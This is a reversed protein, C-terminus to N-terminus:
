ATCTGLEEPRSARQMLQLRGDVVKIIRDAHSFYADDHTIVILTKGRRKLEPLLQTYFVRKFVPDQDAAWEDFLYIPRDELYASVLALRKRQGSSLDLTSFKNNVIKVKHALGLLGLYHEAQEALMPQDTGLLQEFLHFDAFVASFYQRYSNRNSHTIPVDNLLITGKEPEYLGVLLMALTTKGSGNGGVIFVTEGRQITLNLPGLVFQTDDAASRYRHCVDRLELSTVEGFPLHVPNDNSPPPSLGIDLQRIRELAIGAQRLSPMAMMLDSIPRVLYLVILCVAAVLEANQPFWLPIGFLLLGITLYFLMNGANTVWTYSTMAKISSEQLHLSAPAMVDEVFAVGRQTNLQLEKSGEILSRFHQYLSDLQERMKGLQRLPWREVFHYCILCLALSITFYAFVHWSLWAMYALCGVIVVIGGFALPLLQSALVLADVDKTLIVLMNSKGLAQLRELPTALLKRSLSLRLALITRQTLRLLTIESICKLALHIFCLAFFMAAITPSMGGSINKAILAILGAGSAGGVLGATITLVWLLPSQSVLFSLLNTPQRSKM